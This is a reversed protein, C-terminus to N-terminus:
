RKSSASTKSPKAKGANKPVGGAGKQSGASVAKKLEARKKAEAKKEEKAKKVAELRIKTREETKQNRKARLDQVNVGAVGRVGKLNVRTTAGLAKRARKKAADENSIGKKHQKRFVVTWHIKRPNKRQLFLSEVKADLFRFIRSDSRVFLKGKNPYIKYGSFSCIELKM